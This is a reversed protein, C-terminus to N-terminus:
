WFCALPRCESAEDLCGLWCSVRVYVLVVNGDAAFSKVVRDPMVVKDVSLTQVVM